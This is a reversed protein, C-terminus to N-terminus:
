LVDLGDLQELVAGSFSELGGGGGGGNKPTPPPSPPGLERKAHRVRLGERIYKCAITDAWAHRTSRAKCACM